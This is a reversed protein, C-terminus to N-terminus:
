GLPQVEEEKTGTARSEDARGETGDDELSAVMASLPGEGSISASVVVCCPVSWVTDSCSHVECHVLHPLHTGVTESPTENLGSVGILDPGVGKESLCM